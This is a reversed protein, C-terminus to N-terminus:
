MVVSSMGNGQGKGLVSASSQDSRLLELSVSKHKLTLPARVYAAAPVVPSSVSGLQKDDGAPNRPLAKSPNHPLSKSPQRKRTKQHDSFALTRVSSSMVLPFKGAVRSQNCGGAQRIVVVM